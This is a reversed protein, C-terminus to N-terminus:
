HAVLCREAGVPRARALKRLIDMSTVIGVVKRGDVVLVRHIDKEVMLAVLTELTSDVAATITYPTCIDAVTSEGFDEEIFGERLAALDEDDFRTYFTSRERPHGKMEDRVLDSQSVVGALHGHADVVPAGSIKNEHLIMALACVTASLPITVLDRSMIDGATLGSKELARM